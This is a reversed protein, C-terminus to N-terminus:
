DERWDIDERLFPPELGLDWWKDERHEQETDMGSYGDNYGSSAIYNHIVLGDVVKVIEETEEKAKEVNGENFYDLLTDLFHRNVDVRQIHWGNDTLAELNLNGRAIGDLFPFDFRFRFSTGNLSMGAFYYPAYIIVTGRNNLGYYVEMKEGTLRHM